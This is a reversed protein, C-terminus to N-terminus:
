NDIRGRFTGETFNYIDINNDPNSREKKLSIEFSGEISKETPDYRSIVFQGIGNPDLKYESTLVDGGITSYYYGQNHTLAYSGTGDFKIRMVIVEDNPRNVIGLFTLTDTVNDVRIESYGTWDIANRKASVYNDSNMLGVDETNHCSIIILLSLFVAINKMIGNEYQVRRKENVNSVGGFTNKGMPYNPVDNKGTNCNEIRM